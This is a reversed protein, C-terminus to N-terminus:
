ASFGRWIKGPVNFSTQTHFSMGTNQFLLFEFAVMMQVYNQQEQVLYWINWVCNILQFIHLCSWNRQMHFASMQVGDDMEWSNELLTRCALPPHSRSAAGTPNRRCRTRTCTEACSGLYISSICGATTEIRNLNQRIKGLWLYISFHKKIWMVWCLRIKFSLFCFLGFVISPFVGQEITQVDKPNEERCVM